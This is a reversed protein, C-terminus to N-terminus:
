VCLSVRERCSARGIEYLEAVTDRFKYTLAFGGPYDALFEATVRRATPHDIAM